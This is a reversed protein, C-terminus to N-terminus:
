ERTSFLVLLLVEDGPRRHSCLLAEASSSGVANVGRLSSEAMSPLYSEQVQM